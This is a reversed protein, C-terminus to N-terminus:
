GEQDRKPNTTEYKKRLEEIRQRQAAIAAEHAKKEELAKMAAAERQAELESREAVVAPTQKAVESAKAITQRTKSAEQYSSEIFSQLESLKNQLSALEQEIEERPKSGITEVAAVEVPDVEEAIAETEADETPELLVLTAAPDPEVDTPIGGEEVVKEEVVEKRLGAAAKAAALKLVTELVSTTKDALEKNGTEVTKKAQDLTKQAAVLEAEAKKHEETKETVEEEMGDLKEEMGGLSESEEHVQLNIAAAQWKRTLFKNNELEAKAVELAKKADAEKKAVAAVANDAAEKAKATAEALEAAKKAEAQATALQKKAEGLATNKAVLQANVTNVEGDAKAKAAEIGKKKTDADAIKKNAADLQGKAAAMAQSAKKHEATKAALEADAKQKAAKVANEKDRLPKLAADAAALKQTAATQAAKAAALAQDAQQKAQTLEAPAQQGNQSAAALKAAADQQAKTKAAVAADAQQKATAATQQATAAEGLAKQTNADLVAKAAAQKAAEVAQALANVAQQQKKFEGDWKAADGQAAKIAALQPALADAHKKAEARKADTAAKLKTVEATLAKVQNDLDTAKKETAVKQAAAEAAKKKADEVKARAAAMETSVTKIGEELKPLNTTLETIQKEAYALQQDITPPNALLEGLKEGSAAEWVSINGTYDGSFVRKSDQSFAVSMVIDTSAVIERELNGDVKWIKVKKDRGGSVIRGDPAFDVSQAGEGHAAWKKVQNGNTMEWLIIQGDEACSALVNSDARWALDVVAETHGKLTYFEYGTGGEWVYLDANRGGTAFLVGDPSFDATLMWDPHKKISSTQEGKVTDWLKINRGPGGLVVTRHDPSIDAGLVIDFEKGVEIVREGTKVDWAVVNGSKGGRGGGCILLSGNASFNLVQPFGEPYPLIGLLDLDESHYLLVQKQGAIAVIPAWPSHAIAPVANPRDTIVEPQLLLDQPMAAPGEPKGTVATLNMDLKPKDSKKAKSSSTELLGGDIWKQITALTKDDAKPKKPPMFPEEKHAMLSYLRSGLPDQAIVIDGGSGGTLTAGYTSLDLGGKSEDPNHCNLCNNELIPLIHEQFNIKEDQAQAASFAALSATLLLSFFARSKKM